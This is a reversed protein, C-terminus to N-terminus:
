ATERRSLKCTIDFGIRQSFYSFYKLIDDSIKVWCALHYHLWKGAVVKHLIALEERLQRSEAEAAGVAASVGSASETNLKQITGNAEPFNLYKM